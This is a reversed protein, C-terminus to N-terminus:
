KEPEKEKKCNEAKDVQRDSLKYFLTGAGGSIVGILAVVYLQDVIPKLTAIVTFLILWVLFASPSKLKDKLAKYAPIASIIFLTLAIGSVTQHSGSSIWIPFQTATAVVPAGVSLVHGTWRM